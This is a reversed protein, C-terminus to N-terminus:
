MLDSIAWIRDLAPAASFLDNAVANKLSDTNRKLFDSADVCTIPEERNNHDKRLFTFSHKPLALDLIDMNHTTFFLQENKKISTSMLALVAKEIDSHIYSFKEDCYYFTNKGKLLSILFQAIAIGAKTGSSLITNNLPTEDQIIVAKHPYRIVYANEVENSKEVKEIAPDLAKLINELIQRSKEETHFIHVPYEGEDPYDFLWYLEEAKELEKIYNDSGIYEAKELRKICSEYSDNARIKEQRIEVKVDSLTYKGKPCAAIYCYVRSLTDSNCVIDITFSAPNSRDCIVSTISEYTKKDIFNCISMLMKGLTTKGSANAGMIINIKKYRFNPHGELHEDPIPSGVIKKPYTLNLHFNKFAYFNDVRVDLVIM